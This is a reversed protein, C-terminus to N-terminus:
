PWLCEAPLTCLERHLLGDTRGLCGHVNSKAAEVTLLWHSVLLVVGGADIWVGVGCFLAM